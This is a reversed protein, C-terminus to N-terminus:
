EGARSENAFDLTLPLWYDPEALDEYFRWKNRVFHDSRALDDLGRAPSVFVNSTWHGLNM